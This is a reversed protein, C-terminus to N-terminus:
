RTHQGIVASGRGGGSGGSGGGGCVWATRVDQVAALWAARTQAEVDDLQQVYSTYQALADVAAQQNGAQVQAQQSLQVNYYQTAPRAPSPSGVHPDVSARGPSRPGPPLVWGGAGGKRHTCSVHQYDEVVGEQNTVAYNASRLANDYARQADALAVQTDAKITVAAVWARYALTGTRYLYGTKLAPTLGVAPGQPRFVSLAQDGPGVLGDVYALAPELAQAPAPRPAANAQVGLRVSPLSCRRGLPAAAPPPGLM